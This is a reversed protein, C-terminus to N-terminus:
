QSDRRFGQQRRWQVIDRQCSFERALLQSISRLYRQQLVSRDQNQLTPSWTLAQLDPQPKQSQVSGVQSNVQTFTPHTNVQHGTLYLAMLSYGDAAARWDQELWYQCFRFFIRSHRSEDQALLLLIKRYVPETFDQRVQTYTNAVDLEECHHLFLLSYRNAVPDFDFNVAQLQQRTPELDPRFRRLYETHALYHRQEEFLWVGMFSSFDPDDGFAQMFARTGPATSFEALATNRIWQAQLDTLSHDYQDWPIDQESHWRNHELFKYTDLAQM